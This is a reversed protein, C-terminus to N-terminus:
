RSFRVGSRPEGCYAIRSVEQHNQSAMPLPKRESMPEEHADASPNRREKLPPLAISCPPAIDSRGPGHPSLPFHNGKM